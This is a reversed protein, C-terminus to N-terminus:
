RLAESRVQAEAVVPAARVVGVETDAMEDLAGAQQDLRFPVVDQSLDQILDPSPLM